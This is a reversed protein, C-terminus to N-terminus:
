RNSKGVQLTDNIECTYALDFTLGTFLSSSTIKPLPKILWITLPHVPLGDDNNEIDVMMEGVLDSRNKDIHGPVKIEYMQDFKLLCINSM